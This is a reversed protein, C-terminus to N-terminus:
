GAGLSRGSRRLFSGGWRSDLCGEEWVYDGTRLGAEVEWCWFGLSWFGKGFFAAGEVKESGFVDGGVGRASYYM